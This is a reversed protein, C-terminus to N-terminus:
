GVLLQKFKAFKWQNIIKFYRLLFLTPIMKSLDWSYQLKGELRMWKWKKNKPEVIQDPNEKYNDGSHQGNSNSDPNHHVSKRWRNTFFPLISFATSIKQSKKKKSFSVMM